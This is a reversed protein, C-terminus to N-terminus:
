QPIVACSPKPPDTTSHRAIIVPQCRAKGGKGKGKDKGKEEGKCCPLFLSTWSREDISIMSAHGIYHPM